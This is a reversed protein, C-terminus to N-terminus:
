PKWGRVVSRAGAGRRTEVFALGAETMWEHIESETYASAGENEVMTTLAAMVVDAPGDRTEALLREYVVVLGGSPILEVAEHVIRRAGLPSAESLVDALLVADWAARDALAFRPLAIDGSLFAVEPHRERVLAGVPALDLVTAALGPTAAMLTASHAGSGGGVDLLRVGAPVDALAPLEAGHMTALDDLAGLLALSGAPDDRLRARWSPSRANGDRITQALGYWHERSFSERAVIAAISRPHAPDLPAGAESLRFRAGVRNVLGLCALAGLLARAGDSTLGLEEAVEDARMARHSIAAAVGTECATAVVVSRQYATVMDLLAALDSM